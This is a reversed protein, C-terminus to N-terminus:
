NTFTVALGDTFNSTASGAVADRHWTQFNRTQGAVATVFGTPTPIQTLNVLLSFEGTTGSNKIQGPGTYRGISGGLCLVGQSGGPNPTSAQTLSTLFYGFANNPLRSAELTLNNSAISASGAGSILSTQGTSNPNATCYNVGIGTDAYEIVYGAPHELEAVDNWSEGFQTTQLLELFDEAGFAGVNNPEGAFWQTFAFPEGTIWEWGGDPESYSPSATNQFGGVWFNHVGGLASFVFDNEQQDNLTVLRGQRGMHSTAAAAARAQTWTIGPSSIAAYYTGNVPNLIPTGDNITLNGPGTAGNYGGVRIFYSQGSTTPFSIRSQFNCADDNCVISVLGACTGGLAQLATDYTTGSCTSVTVSGTTVATYRYWLDPGGNLACPWLEASLTAATTDFAYTGATVQLATSCEDNQARVSPIALTAVVIPFVFRQMPLTPWLAAILTLHSRGASCRSWASEVREAGFGRDVDRGEPESQRRASM